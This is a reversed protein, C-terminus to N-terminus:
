ELFRQFWGPLRTTYSGGLSVYGLHARSASPVFLWAGSATATLPGTVPIDVALTGGVLFEETAQMGVPPHPDHYRMHLDGVRFGPVLAVGHPLSIRTRWDFAFVNTGIDFQQPGTGHLLNKNITLGLQGFEFPMELEVESGVDGRYYTRLQDLPRVATAGLRMTMMSYPAPADQAILSRASLIACSLAAARYIVVPINLSRRSDTAHNL